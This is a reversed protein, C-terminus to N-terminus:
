SGLAKRKAEIRRNCEEIWSNFATADKLTPERLLSFLNAANESSGQDNREYIARFSGFYQIIRNLSNEFDMIPQQSQLVDTLDAAQDRHERLINGWITTRIENLIASAKQPESKFPEYQQPRFEIPHPGFKPLFGDTIKVAELGRGNLIRSITSLNEDFLERSRGIYPRRLTMAPDAPLVGGNTTPVQAKSGPNTQDPETKSVLIWIGVGLALFSVVILAIGVSRSRRWLAFLAFGILEACGTYIAVDLSLFIWVGAVALVALVYPGCLRVARDAEPSRLWRPPTFGIWMAWDSLNSAAAKPGIQAAWMVAAVFATLVFWAAGLVTVDAM